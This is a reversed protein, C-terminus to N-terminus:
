PLDALITKAPANDKRIQEVLHAASDFKKESRIRRIFVIEIEQGY